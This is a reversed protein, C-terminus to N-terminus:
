DQSFLPRREEPEVKTSTFSHILQWWWWQSREQTGGDLVLEENEAPRGRIRRWWRGFGEGKRVWVEGTGDEYAVWGGKKARLALGTLRVCKFIGYLLVLGGITCFITVVSTLFTITSVQCGLGSTRLEFREPGM